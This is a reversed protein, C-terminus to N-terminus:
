PICVGTSSGTPTCTYGDRCSGRGQGPANCTAVCAKSNDSFTLCTAGAGCGGETCARTCYGDPWVSCYDGFQCETSSVCSLGITVSVGEVPSVTFNRDAIVSGATVNIEKEDVSNPWGGRGEHAEFTGDGDDDSYAVLYYAGPMVNRLVFKGDAAANTRAAAVWKGQANKSVLLVQTTPVVRPRRVRLLLESEGSESHFTMPVDLDQSFSGRWTLNVSVAQGAPVPLPVATASWEINAVQASPGRLSVGLPANGINSLRVTASPEDATVVLASASLSLRGMGSPQTELSAIAKAADVLGAGCSTACNSVPTASAVLAARAEAFTLSPRLTKMLAVLGAIHPTAMSTGQLRTYAGGGSTSLVGDPKGDGDDDRDLAGGPGALTVQAGFNTYATAKGRADTAAVCIVSTQNCPLKNATNEDENGAAVVIIAGRATAADIATQYAMSPAGDGGLSMNVVRAVNANTRVGPVAGGTAWTVGSIIDFNTGSGGAGLVRVPLVKANWAVGAVGVGNNTAAAVTGAVHTGHWSVGVTDTPDDDRGNGDAGMAADSILDIGPVLNAVLDPHASIGTDLVAVVVDSAGVTVDWAAPLGMARYHWQQAYMTDNPLRLAQALGNTEIFKVGAPKGLLDTAGRTENDSLPSGDLHTCSLLAMTESAWARVECRWGFREANLRRLVDADDRPEELGVILEGARIPSQRKVAPREQKQVDDGRTPMPPGAREVRGPSEARFADVVSSRSRVGQTSASSAFVRVEGSVTGTTVTPATPQPATPTVPTPEPVYGSSCAVLSASCVALSLARM